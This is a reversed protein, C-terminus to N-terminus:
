LLCPNSYIFSKYTDSFLPIKLVMDRLLRSYTITITILLKKKMLNVKGQLWQHKSCNLIKLLFNENGVIYHISENYM